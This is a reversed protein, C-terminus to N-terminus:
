GHRDVLEARRGTLREFRDVIVDCYAPDLEILRARRGLRDAAVLTSGSGAFPDLVLDKRRSSNRLGIEVLEVPKMTPHECAARPRAVELVSSQAHDGHWGSAGRGLRGTGPKYGYLIPEHRFHYDAHGLVLADKVWVLTQRLSWGQDSFARLFTASQPGAPHAVYLAAGASLAGDIAAFARRLLEELGDPRDNRLRLRDATRGEYAVGYPPATWLLAAEDGAMLRELDRADIADACVLRHDGLAYHDGPRTRPESPPPPLEEEEYPAPVVEDLLDDLAAEDFGTGSLDGLGELLEILLEDDYGALDSTRNDVLVLKLAEEESLDVFTAAIESFGLERAARLVHNGALVEGTRGNAVIPRYQGHHRLSNKVAELDGRRPNRPHPRLSAIPM